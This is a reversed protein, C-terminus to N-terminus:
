KKSFFDTIHDNHIIEEKILKIYEIENIEGKNYRKRAVRITDTQPFSGISTTPLLPLHFKEQQKKRRISFASKRNLMEPNIQFAKEKSSLHHVLSSSQRNQLISRSMKLSPGKAVKQNVVATLLVVEELKQKGFALWNKIAPNMGKEQELDQPVHILSCSPSIIIKDTTLEKTVKKIVEFARKYDTKWINRGDVIGLSLIKEKNMIKLASELQNAGSILDLHVAEIPLSFTLGLNKGLTAFYNALLIKPRHITKGIRSYAQIFIDRTKENLKGLRNSNIIPPMSLVEGASDIYVPFKEFGELMATKISLTMLEKEDPTM